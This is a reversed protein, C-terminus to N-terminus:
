TLDNHLGFLFLYFHGLSISLFIELVRIFFFVRLCKCLNLTSSLNISHLCFIPFTKLRCKVEKTSVNFLLLLPRVAHSFNDFKASLFLEPTVHLIGCTECPNTKLSRKLTFIELAVPKSSILTINKFNNAGYRVSLIVLIQLKLMVSFRKGLVQFVARTM